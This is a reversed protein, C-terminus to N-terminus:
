EKSLPLIIKVTSGMNETSEISLDGGFLSLIRKCIFLGLGTGTDKTTYFPEFIKQLTEKSMGCGNDVVTILASEKESSISISITGASHTSEFSNKVINLIVQKLQDKICLVYLPEKSNTINLTANHNSAEAMIIPYLEELVSGIEVIDSPQVHSPKGLILFENVIDNIRTIESQIISFYMEDQADNYKESLLQVLGKIGTLPNKIEHATTAALTGIMKLKQNEYVKRQKDADQKLLIIQVAFFILHSVASFFLIFQLLSNPNIFVEEKTSSIELMWPVDEFPIVQDYKGQKLDENLTFIVDKKNDKIVIAINPTLLELVNKIYDIRLQALLYGGAENNENFVPQCIFLFTDQNPGINKQYSVHTKKNIECTDMYTSPMQIGNYRSTTGAVIIRSLNVFYLQEYRNDTKKTQALLNTMEYSQDIMNIASISLVDLSKITENILKEIYQQHLQGVEKANAKVNEIEQEELYDRYMIAAIITPIIIIVTYLYIHKQIIKM